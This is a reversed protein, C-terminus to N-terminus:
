YKLGLEKIKEMISLLELWLVRKQSPNRLLYAPHFVVRTPIIINKNNFNFNINHWKGKIKGMPEDKEFFKTTSVKGVLLILKPAMIEIMKLTFPYCMDIEDINPARNGPPRWFVTNSIFINDRNIGVSEFAKCLLQGSRGVFPIGQEDEDAGPAEGIVLIDANFNGSGFVTNIATKKLACENFNQLAEKLGEMSNIHKLHDNNIEKKIIPQEVRPKEKALVPSYPEQKISKQINNSTINPKVVTPTIEKTSQNQLSSLYENLESSGLIYDIGFSRYLSLLSVLQNDM